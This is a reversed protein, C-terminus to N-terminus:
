LVSGLSKRHLRSRARHAISCPHSHRYTIVGLLLDIQLKARMERCEEDYWSNQPMSGYQRRRVPRTHPYAVSAASHLTETLLTTCEELSLGRGVTRLRDWIEKTYVSDTEPTFTYRTHSRGVSTQATSYQFSVSLTLLAHDVAVGVPRAGVTFDQICPIFSPQTMIYDVTSAGHRHPFCTFGAARPFRHLGNLIALGHTTTMEILYRGYETQETDHSCRDLGLEGVDMERLMEDSTDYFLTQSNGTRANFDGLLIIDGDRSFEWIDDDLLSFPSQGGCIDLM